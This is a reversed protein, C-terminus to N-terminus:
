AGVGDATAAGAAATAPPNSLSSRNFVSLREVSLRFMHTPRYGMKGMAAAGIVGFVFLVVVAGVAMGATSGFLAEAANPPPPEASGAFRANGDGYILHLGSSITFAGSAGESPCAETASGSVGGVSWTAEGRFQDGGCAFPRYTGAPLCVTQSLSAGSLVFFEFPGVHLTVGGSWGDGFADSMSVTLDACPTAGVSVKSSARAKCDETAAGHVGNITFSAESWYDGGCVYPYHIGPPVCVSHIKSSGSELTLVKGGFYLFNDGWGDGWSDSLTVTAQVCGAEDPSPLYTNKGMYVGLTGDANLQSNVYITVGNTSETSSTSLDMTIWKGLGCGADTWSSTDPSCDALVSNGYVGTNGGSEVDSWSVLAKHGGTSKTRHEVFVYRGPTSTAIQVGVNAGSSLSGNDVAALNWPGCYPSCAAPADVKIVDGGKAYVWDFVVKGEVMFDANAIPGMGMTSHPNGYEVWSRPEEKWAKAGRTGGLMISAHKAGLNHGIEHAVSADYNDATYLNQVTGPVGVWGIGSWPAASCEPMFVVQFDYSTTAAYGRAGAAAFAMMDIAGTQTKDSWFSLPTATGCDASLYNLTLVPTITSTLTLAGWSNRTYFSATSSMVASIYSTISGGHASAVLGYNFGKPAAASASGDSPLVPMVLVKKTGRAYTNTDDGLTTSASGVGGDAGGRAEKVLDADPMLPKGMTTQLRRHVEASAPPAVLDFSLDLAAAAGSVLAGRVSAGGDCLLSEDHRKEGPAAARRCRLPAEALVFAGDLTFGVVPVRAASSKRLKDTGDGKLVVPLAAAEAGEVDDRHLRIFTEAASATASSRDHMTAIRTLITGEGVHIKEVACDAHSFGARGPFEHLAFALDTADELKGEKVLERLHTLREGCARAEAGTDLNKAAIVFDHVVQSERSLKRPLLGHPTQPTSSGVGLCLAIVAGSLLQKPM